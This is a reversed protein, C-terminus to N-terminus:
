RNNSKSRLVIVIIAIVSHVGYYYCGISSLIDSNYMSWVGSEEYWPSYKKREVEVEM